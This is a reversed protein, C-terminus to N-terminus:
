IRGELDNILQVDCGNWPFDVSIIIFLVEKYLNIANSNNKIEYFLDFISNRLIDKQNDHIRGQDSNYRAILYNKFTTLLM